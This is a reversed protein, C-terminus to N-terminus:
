KESAIPSTHDDVLVGMLHRTLAHTKILDAKARAVRLQAERWANQAQLVALSTAGGTAYRAQEANMQKETIALTQEALTVRVRASADASMANVADARTQMNLAGIRWRSDLNGSLRAGYAIPVKQGSPSLGIRRSFFPADPFAGFNTFVDANELFFQRREPFFITFRSLNTIQQDM